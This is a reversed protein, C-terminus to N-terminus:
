PDKRAAPLDRLRLRLYIRLPPTARFVAEVSHVDESQSIHHITAVSILGRPPELVIWAGDSFWRWPTVLSTMIAQVSKEVSV